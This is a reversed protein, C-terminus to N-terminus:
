LFYYNVYLLSTARLECLSIGQVICKWNSRSVDYSPFTGIFLCTYVIVQCFVICIVMKGHLDRRLDPVVLFVLLTVLLFAISVPYGVRKIALSAASDEKNSGFLASATVQELSPDDIVARLTPSPEGGCYEVCYDLCYRREEYRRGEFLISGDELFTFNGDTVYLQRGDSVMNPINWPLLRLKAAAAAAKPGTLPRRGSMEFITPNVWQRALDSTCSRARLNLNQGDDCCKRVRVWREKCYLAVTSHPKLFQNHCDYNSM